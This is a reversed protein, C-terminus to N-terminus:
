KRMIDHNQKMDKQMLERNEPAKEIDPTTM